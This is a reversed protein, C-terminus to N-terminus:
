VQYNLDGSQITDSLLINAFIHAPHQRLLELLCLVTEGALNLTQSHVTLDSCYVTITLEARREAMNAVVYIVFSAADKVFDNLSFSYKESRSAGLSLITRRVTLLHLLFMERM